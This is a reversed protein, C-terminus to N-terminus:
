RNALESAQNAFHNAKARGWTRKVPAPVAHSAPSWGRPELHLRPPIYLCPGTPGVPCPRQPGVGPAPNIASPQVTGDSWPTHRNSRNSTQRRSSEDSVESTSGAVHKSRSSRRKGTLLVPVGGFVRSEARDTDEPTAASRSRRNTFDSSLVTVDDSLSDVVSEATTSSSSDLTEHDLTKPQRRRRRVCLLAVFLPLLLLLLVLLGVASFGAILAVNTHHQDVVPAATVDVTKVCVKVSQVGCPCCLCVAFYLTCFVVSLTFLGSLLRSDVYFSLLSFKSVM